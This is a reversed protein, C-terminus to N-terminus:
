GFSPRLNSTAARPGRARRIMHVTVGFMPSGLERRREPKRQIALSATNEKNQRSGPPVASLSGVPSITPVAQPWSQLDVPPQALWCHVHKKCSIRRLIQNSNPSEARKHSSGRRSKTDRGRTRDPRAPNCSRPLSPPSLSSCPILLRGGGLAPKQVIAQEVHPRLRPAIVIDRLSIGFVLSWFPFLLPRFPSPEAGVQLLSNGM